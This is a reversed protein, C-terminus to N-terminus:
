HEFIYMVVTYQGVTKNYTAELTIHSPPITDTPSPKPMFVVKKYDAMGPFFNPQLTTTYGQPALCNTLIQKYQHYTKGAAEKDKTQIFACEYFLGLSAVFRAGISGPVKVGTEWTTASVNEATKKGRINRFQNPGDAAITAVADCFDSDQAQASGCRWMISLLILLFYRM